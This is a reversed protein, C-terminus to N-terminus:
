RDKRLQATAAGNADLGGLVFLTYNSNALLTQTSLTAVPKSLGVGSVSLSATTSPLVSSYTSAQGAAVSDAVPVLDATMALAGSFNAVGNVLRLKAQTADGPPRNDDEIWSSLAATAGGRVLLTYDAGARLAFTSPTLAVGNVAVVTSPSGAGVLAYNGVAPSNTNNLLVTEGVQASVAGGNSVGAAVRVRAQTNDLRSVDSQQTLLLANVLVGGRGPTLVLTVVQKGSLTLTPLDLPLDTKSGAVTVRLRWTGSTVNLWSSSAGFTAGALAPVSAALVDNSGTLYVDLSGADQAANVVRLQTKNDDAAGSNEDLLLQKLAGLSGYALLTFYKDKGVAPTFSLLATASGTQSLTSSAKGPDVAAYGATNGYSVQSQLVQGDVGLDLKDYDYTANVLRVQAKTRDTGGGCAVQLLAAGCVLAVMWIGKLKM